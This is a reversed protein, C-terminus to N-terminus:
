ANTWVDIEEKMKEYKLKDVCLITKWRDMREDMWGVMWRDLWECEDM